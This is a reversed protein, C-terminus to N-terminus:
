NKGHKTQVHELAVYNCGRRYKIRANQRARTRAVERGIFGIVALIVCIIFLAGIM